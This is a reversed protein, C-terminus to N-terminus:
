TAGQTAGAAGAAGGGTTLDAAERGAWDGRLTETEVGGWTLVTGEGEESPGDVEVAVECGIGGTLTIGEADKSPAGVEKM